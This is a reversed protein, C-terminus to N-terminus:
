EVPPIVMFPVNTHYVLQKIVPKFMLNEFFSHKNQIMVLFNVKHKIQFQEVAEVLDVYETTLFLHNNDKLFE